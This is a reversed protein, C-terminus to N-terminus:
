FQFYIFEKAYNTVGIILYFWYVYTVSKIPWLDLRYFADLNKTFYQYLQVAFLLWIVNLLMAPFLVESGMHGVGLFVTKTMELIQTTSTARFILWGYCTLIFTCTISIFSYLKTKATKNYITFRSMFSHWLKHSCLLSGQYLGWLIFHNSAGHWLGGLLMTILLNRYTNLIGKRNGGLPYYLFERLWTSLSIHWRDWFESPSKSFYPLNFNLTFEFGLCKALGRAMDSYGSFDCYIQWAFMWVALVVDVWTYAGYHWNNFVLNVHPSLSDAICVKKFLGWFILYFGSYFQELDFTRNKTIQPILLKGKQIPGAIMHPFFSVFLWYDFISHIPKNEGRYIEWVYAISQFTYFSIGLPLIIHIMAPPLHLKFLLFVHNLESVFFNFYKFFGLIILNTTVSLLLIMKKFKPNNSSFVKFGAWYDISSTFILLAFFKWSWFSYFIFSALLLLQNQRKHPLLWYLCFVITFFIFFTLSNFLM